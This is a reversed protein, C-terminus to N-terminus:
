KLVFSSKPTKFETIAIYVPLNANPGDSTQKKKQEVRSLVTNGGKAEMIGSVELKAYRQLFNRSVNDDKKYLWYDFGTRIVSQKIIAYKTFHFVLLFAIAYAANECIVKDEQWGADGVVKDWSISVKKHPDDNVQLQVGSSHGFRSLAVICAEAYFACITPSIEPHLQHLKQIAQIPSPKM